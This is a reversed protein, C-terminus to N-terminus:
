QEKITKRSPGSGRLLLVIWALLATLHIAILFTVLPGLGFMADLLGSPANVNQAM